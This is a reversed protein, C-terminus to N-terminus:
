EYLVIKAFTPVIGVKKFYNQVDPHKSVYRFLKMTNEDKDDLVFINIGVIYPYMGQVIYAQHVIVPGVKAGTSDEFSIQLPRIDPNSLVKSLYSIGINNGSKLVDNIVSDSNEKFIIQKKLPKDKLVLSKLNEYESSLINNCIFDPEVKLKPYFTKLSIQENSLISLLQQHTIAELPFEIKVFFVLADKAIATHLHPQMNYAKILSDERQSYNRAIFIAQAKGSLLAKMVDFSNASAFNIDFKTKNQYQEIIPKIMNYISEDCLIQYGSKTLSDNQISAQEHRSEGCSASILLFSIFSLLIKYNKIIKKM